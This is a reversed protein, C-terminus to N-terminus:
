GLAIISDELDLTKYTLIDIANVICYKRMQDELKHPRNVEGNQDVTAKQYNFPYDPIIITLKECHEILYSAITFNSVVVMTAQEKKVMEMITKPNLDSVTLTRNEFGPYIFQNNRSKLIKKTIAINASGSTSGHTPNTLTAVGFSSLFIESYEQGDYFTRDYMSIFEKSSELLFRTVVDKVHEKKFLIDICSETFPLTIECTLLYYLLKWHSFMEDMKFTDKVYQPVKNAIKMVRHISDFFLTDHDVILMTEKKNMMRDHYKERGVIIKSAIDTLSVNNQNEM